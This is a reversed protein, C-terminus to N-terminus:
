PKTGVDELTDMIFHKTRAGAVMMAM